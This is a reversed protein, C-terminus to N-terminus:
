FRFGAQVFAGLSDASKVAAIDLSMGLWLGIGASLVEDEDAGSAINSQYGFRLQAFDFANLELGVALMKSPDEFLIPDTETLDMDAALTMFSTHFAAGVRLQTDHKIDFGNLSQTESIINKALVGVRVTDMLDLVMGADLTTFSGLDTTTEDVIDATDATSLSQQYTIAESSVVKPKIGIALDLGAVSMKRAISLGIEQSVAGFASLDADPQQLGAGNIQAAVAAADAFPTVNTINDIGASAVGNVQVTAAFSYTDGGYVIALNPTARAVLSDGNLNNIIQIQQNLLPLLAAANAANNTGIADIQDQVAQFDDIDGEVDGNDIFAAGLGLSVAVTDNSENVALMAPNAFAATTLGGTAVSVNGMAVSRADFYGYSAASASSIGAAMIGAALLSKKFM